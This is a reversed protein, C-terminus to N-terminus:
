YLIIFLFLLAVSGTSESPATFIGLPSEVLLNPKYFFPDGLVAWYFLTWVAIRGYFSVMLLTVTGCVKYFCLGGFTHAALLLLCAEDKCESNPSSFTTLWLWTGILYSVRIFFAAM